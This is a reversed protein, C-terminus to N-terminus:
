NLLNSFYLKVKLIPLIYIRKIKLKINHYYNPTNLPLIMQYQHHLHRDRNCTKKNIKYDPTRNVHFQEWIKLM